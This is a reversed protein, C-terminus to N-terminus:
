GERTQKKVERQPPVGAYVGMQGTPGSAGGEPRAVEHHRLRREVERRGWGHM